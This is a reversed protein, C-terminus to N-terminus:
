RARLSRPRDTGPCRAAESRDGWSGGGPDAEHGPLASEGLQRPSEGAPIFEEAGEELVERLKEDSLGEFLPVQRLEELTAVTFEIGLAV